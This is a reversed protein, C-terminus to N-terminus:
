IMVKFFLTQLVDRVTLIYDLSKKKMSQQTAKAIGQKGQQPSM